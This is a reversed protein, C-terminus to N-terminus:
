PGAVNVRTYLVEFGLERYAVYGETDRGPSNAEVDSVVDTCGLEALDGVIARLIARDPVFDQTMVGPVPADIGLWGWGGTVCLTRVAVMRGGEYAAYHHWGPRGVLALLWPSTPLGYVKDIFGAWEVANTADVRRVEIERPLPPLPAVPGPPRHVRDWTTTVAYGRAELEAALEPALEPVTHFWHRGIGRERWASRVADLLVPDARRLGLTAGAANFHIFPIRACQFVPLEGVDGRALGLAAAFAPPIAAYMDCWAREDCAEVQWARDVSVSM